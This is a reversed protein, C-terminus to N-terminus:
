GEFVEPTARFSGRLLRFFEATAEPVEAIEDPELMIKAPFVSLLVETIDAYAWQDPEGGLFRCKVEILQHVADEYTDGREEVFEAVLQEIARIRQREEDGMAM